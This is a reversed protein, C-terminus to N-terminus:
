NIGPFVNFSALEGNETTLPAKRKTGIKNVDSETAAKKPSKSAFTALVRM